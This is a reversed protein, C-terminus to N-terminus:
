NGRKRIKIILDMLLLLIFSKKYQCLKFFILWGFSLYKFEFSKFEEQYVKDELINRIERMRQKFKLNSISINLIFSFLNLIKRNSLAIKFDSSLKNEEIIRNMLKYMNKFRVYREKTYISTLSSLNDKRYHYYTSDIYAAKDINLFININFIGDESGIIKTDLFKSNIVERKYLKGWASNLDELKLPYKLEEKYLGFLRRLIEKRVEIKNRFLKSYPFIKRKISLNKYENIRSFLIVEAGTKKVENICKEICDLELWDDSDVFMIYEGTAYKLGTNRAASLGMNKQEIIKLREDNQYQIIVEMSKDETGDNVLIIELNQYSQNLISELCKKIYLEVNYVPIIITIKINM